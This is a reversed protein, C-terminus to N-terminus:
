MAKMVSDYPHLLCFHILEWSMSHKNFYSGIIPIMPLTIIDQDSPNKQEINLVDITVFDLLQQYIEKVTTEFKLKKGTDTTIQLWILAETRVSRSKNYHKLVTQSITNQPNQPM